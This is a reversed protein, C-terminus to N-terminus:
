APARPPRRMAVAVLWALLPVAWLLYLAAQADASIVPRLQWTTAYGAALAVLTVIPPGRRARIEWAGLAVVFPLAYYDTNWTDLLCRALLIAALLALAREGRVGRWWAVATLLASGALVYLKTGGSAWDPAVRYGEKVDGLSGVVQHGTDGFFWFAQWPQFIDGGDHALLKLFTPGYESLLLPLSVLAGVSALTALARWRGTDLALVAPGIAVFAWPKSAIAAGLVLGTLVPRRGLALLVAVVCLVGTLLEEPHGVDLARITLPNFAVIGFLLARDLLPRGARRLRENEFVALLAAAAIAPVALARFVALDGGGLWHAVLAAPARLVLSGGYTPLNSAFGTLDGALLARMAPEAELEYDTFAPTLGGLLLLAVCAVVAAVAAPLMGLWGPPRRAM